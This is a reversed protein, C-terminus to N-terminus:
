RKVVFANKNILSRVRPIARDVAERSTYPGILVKNMGSIRMVKYRYGQKKVTTILRSSPTQSFSGVQIYFTEHSASKPKSKPTKKVVPKAVPAPIKVIEKAKPPKPTPTPKAKPKEASVTPTAPTVKEEETPKPTVEEVQTESSSTTENGNIESEIMTSLAKEDEKDEDDTTQLTLEPSIIETDNDTLIARDSDPDKLVIKTLIIAVILVVIFLAIITLLGKTKSYKQEPTEIILDDLNHDNMM